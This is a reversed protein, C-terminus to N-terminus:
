KEHLEIYKIGLDTIYWKGDKKEALDNRELTKNSGLNNIIQNDEIPFNMQKKIYYTTIGNYQRMINLFDYIYKVEKSM